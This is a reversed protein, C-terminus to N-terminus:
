FRVGGGLVLETEESILVKVMGFPRVKGERAGINALLNVGFETDSGGRDADYRVIAPGGGVWFGFSSSVPLDFLFDGNLTFVDVNDGFALELNPNISWDGSTGLPLLVGGGVFPGDADDVYFGGRLDIDMEARAVASGTVLVLLALVPLFVHDSKRESRIM